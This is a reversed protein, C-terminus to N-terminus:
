GKEAVTLEAVGRSLFHHASAPDMKVKQDARYRTAKETGRHEDQVEYVQVFTIQISKDM